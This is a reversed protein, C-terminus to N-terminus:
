AIPNDPLDLWIHQGEATVTMGFRSREPHGWGVWRFFVGEVEDWLSRDGFQRVDSGSLHAGSGGAWLWVEFPGGDNTAVSVDPLCGAMAVDFGYGSRFIRRPDLTAERKRYAGEYTPSDPTRQGRLMMYRAGGSFRGTATGDRGVTLSVKHGPEFEPMWPFAITGGPRTQEVWAYPVTVVGCTVHVRDFPAAEPRGKEGDGHVLRPAYGAEKLNTAAVALVAQDIEVSTVNTDGVRHSLLGATWGTGTGIELVRDGDYPDLLELFEVVAGPASLSSTYDGSSGGGLETMGDDLQTIISLDAYAATWWSDPDRERDIRYGPAEYPNVWAVAPVFLHRPVAHLAERWVKDTLEGNGALEDALAEVRRWPNM